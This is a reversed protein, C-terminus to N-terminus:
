NYEKACDSLGLDLKLVCYGPCINGPYCSIWLFVERSVPLRTNIQLLIFAIYVAGLILLVIARISLIPHIGSSLWQIYGILVTVLFFSVGM